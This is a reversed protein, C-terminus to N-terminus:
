RPFTLLVAGPTKLRLRVEGARVALHEHRRARFQGDPAIQAGALRVGSKAELSPGTLRQAGARRAPTRVRVIINGRFSRDLNDIVIQITGNRLRVAYATLNHTEDSLSLPLFRGGTMRSALLAGYYIPQVTLRRAAEDAGGAFCVLSYTACSQPEDQLDMGALGLQAASLTYDIAWLASGFTDSVGPQGLCSASNTEGLHLPLDSSRAIALASSLAKSVRAATARSVLDDMTLAACASLPYWHWTLFAVDAREDRAYSGLWGQGVSDPGSIRVSPNVGHIAKRYQEVEERYMEYTYVSRYAPKTFTPRSLSLTYVDPENGIQVTRLAGGFREVAVRVEDAARLPDYHGLNVGLDVSWGTARALRAVRALDYPTIPTTAWSPLAASPDGSWITYADVDNASFRINGKGLNTLLQAFTSRRPDLWATHLVSAEFSVGLYDRPIAGGPHDPDVTITLRPSAAQVRESSLGTVALCLAAAAALAAWRRM